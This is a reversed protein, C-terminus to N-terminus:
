AKAEPRKTISEVIEKFRDWDSDKECELDVPGTYAEVNFGVLEPYWEYYGIKAADLAECVQPYFEGKIRTGKSM